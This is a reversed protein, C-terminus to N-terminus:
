WEMENLDSDIFIPHNLNWDFLLANVVKDASQQPTIPAEAGGMDSSFWGPHLALVKIGDKQAKNQLIKSFMNLAAKSMTYGYESERWNQGSISGAESSINVILKKNGKKVLNYTHKIIRLPAIANVELTKQVANFDTENLDPRDQELHIAANNVVIDLFGTIGKIKQIVAIIEQEKTVDAKFLRLKVPFNQKLTLLEDSNRRSLSYVIHGQELLDKSLYFGM